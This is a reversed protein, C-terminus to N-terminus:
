LDAATVMVDSNGCDGARWARVNSFLSPRVGAAFDTALQMPRPRQQYCCESAAHCHVVFRLPYRSWVVALFHEDTEGCCCRFEVAVEVVM